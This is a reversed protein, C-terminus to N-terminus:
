KFFMDDVEKPVRAPRNKARDILCWNTKASVILVENKYFEVVRLSRVGENKQVFTKAILEDDFFAQGKYEIFHDLVVWYFAKNFTDNSKSLWHAGALDQVWQLFVVNNVHQLDDLHEATVIILKEYVESKM